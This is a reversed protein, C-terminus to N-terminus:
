QKLIKWKELLNKVNSILEEITGNNDIAYDFTWDDLATESPHLSGKFDTTGDDNYKLNHPGLPRNVRIVIGGRDKIAQAENPFRVDTIIWNPEKLIKSVDEEAVSDGSDVWEEKYDSFLANCWINPHIIERGAETGLLQLLKRPTIKILEPKWRTESDNNHFEEAEDKSSFYYDQYIIDLDGENCVVKWKWWEEGLEKEKFEKDELQEKTCGLLICVIDKLKDAFKKIKFGSQIIVNHNVQGSSDLTIIDKETLDGKTWLLYQIIKGVTDKGSEIKGSIGIIM